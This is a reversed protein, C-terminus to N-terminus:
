CGTKADLEATTSDLNSIFGAPAYCRVYNFEKSETAAMAELRADQEATTSDLNSIFGAPAYDRVQKVENTETAAMAELRADQEATTSDLNSIFGAPYSITSALATGLFTLSFTIVLASVLLEKNFM